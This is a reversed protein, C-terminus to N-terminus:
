NGNTNKRDLWKKYFSLLLVFACGIVFWLVHFSEISIPPQPNELTKPGVAIAYLSGIMMGLIAYITASRHRDLLKKIGRLSIVVGALVGIGFFLIIWLHGFDFSLVEKLSTIVPVYLGFCMLITSGSIGPLVMASIALIGALIVYLATLPSFGIDNVSSSFNFTSLAIVAAAGLVAFPIHKYNGAITQKEAVLVLPVSVLVFGLFLSSVQYIHSTFVASLIFVALGMGIVWGVGLKLLYKVAALRQEKKGRILDSLSTIFEDYFGMIFAITGGSVGPVSDALAMFFGGLFTYILKKM